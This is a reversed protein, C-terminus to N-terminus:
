SAIGSGYEPTPEGSFTEIGSSPPSTSTSTGAFSIGGRLFFYRFLSPKYDFPVCEMTRREVQSIQTRDNSISETEHQIAIVQRTPHLESIVLGLRAAEVGAM